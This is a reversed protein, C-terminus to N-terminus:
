GVIFKHVVQQLRTSLGKLINTIKVNHILQKFKGIMRLRKWM